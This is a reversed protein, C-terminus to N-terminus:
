TCLKNTQTKEEREKPITTQGFIQINLKARTLKQFVECVCSMEILRFYNFNFFFVFVCVGCVGGFGCLCVVGFVGTRLTKIKKKFVVDLKNEEGSFNVALSCFQLGLM